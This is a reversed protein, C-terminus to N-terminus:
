GRLLVVGLNLHQPLDGSIGLRRRMQAQAGQIRQLPQLVRSRRLRHAICLLPHLCDNVTKQGWCASMRAM